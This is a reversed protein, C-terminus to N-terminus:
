TERQAIYAFIRPLLLTGAVVIWLAMWTSLPRGAFLMGALGGGLATLAGLLSLHLRRQHHWSAPLLHAVSVLWSILMGLLLWLLILWFM